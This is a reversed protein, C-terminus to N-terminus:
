KEKAVWVLVVYEVVLSCKADMMVVVVVVLAEFM